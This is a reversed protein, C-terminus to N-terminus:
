LREEGSIHRTCRDRDLRGRCRSYLRRDVLPFNARGPATPDLRDTLDLELEATTVGGSEILDGQPQEFHRRDTDLRAALRLPAVPQPLPRRSGQGDSVSRGNNEIRHHADLCRQLLDPPGAEGMQEVVFSGGEISLRFTNM